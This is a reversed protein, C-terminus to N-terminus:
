AERPTRLPSEWSGRERDECWAGMWVRAGGGETWHSPGLSVGGLFGGQGTKELLPGASHPKMDGEEIINTGNSNLGRPPSMVLLSSTDGKGQPSSTSSYRDAWIDLSQRDSPRCPWLCALSSVVWYKHCKGPVSLLLLKIEEERRGGKERGQEERELYLYESDNWLLTVKYVLAVGSSLVPDGQTNGEHGGDRGGSVIVPTNKSLTRM